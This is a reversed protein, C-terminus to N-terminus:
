NSAYLECVEIVTEILKSNPDTSDLKKLFEKLKELNDWDESEMFKKNKVKTLLQFGLRTIYENM